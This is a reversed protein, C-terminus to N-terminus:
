LFVPSLNFPDIGLYSSKERGKERKKKEKGWKCERIQKRGEKVNSSHDYYNSIMFTGFQM